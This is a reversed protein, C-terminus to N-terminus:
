DSLTQLFHFPMIFTNNLVHADYARVTVTYVELICFITVIEYNEKDVFNSAKMVEPEIIREKGRLM